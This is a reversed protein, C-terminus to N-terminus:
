KKKPLSKGKTRTRASVPELARRTRSSVPDTNEPNNLKLKKATKEFLLKPSIKKKVKKSDTTTEKMDESRAVRSKERVAAEKEKEGVEEQDKKTNESDAVRILDADSDDRVVNLGKQQSILVPKLKTLTPSDHIEAQHM